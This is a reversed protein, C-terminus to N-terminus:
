DRGFGEFYAPNTSLDAPADICGILGEKALADYVTAPPSGEGADHEAGLLADIAEEVIADESTHRARAAAELRRVRDAHLQLTVSQKDYTTM